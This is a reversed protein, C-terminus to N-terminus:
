IMKQIKKSFIKSSKKSFNKKFNSGKKKFIIRLIYEKQFCNQPNKSRKFNKQWFDVKQVFIQFKQPFTRFYINRKFFIQFNTSFQKSFTKKQFNESFKNFNKRFINRNFFFRQFKQLINKFFNFSKQLKTPFLIKQVIKSCKKQFFM